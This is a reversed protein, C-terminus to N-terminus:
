LHLYNFVPMRHPGSPANACRLPSLVIHLLTFIPKTIVTCYPYDHMHLYVFYQGSFIDAIRRFHPDADGWEKYLDELKVNLQFYDRLMEEENDQVSTVAVPEEEEEKKLMGKFKMEAENEGQVSVVARGIKDDGKGPSEKNKYVHYWLTDETQTLTWVRSGM